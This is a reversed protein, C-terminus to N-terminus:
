GDLTPGHSARRSILESRLLDQLFQDCAAVTECASFLAYGDGDYGSDAIANACEHRRACLECLRTGINHDVTRTRHGCQQCRYCGQRDFRDISM